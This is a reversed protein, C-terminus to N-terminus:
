VAVPWSAGGAPLCVTGGWAVHHSPSPVERDLSTLGVAAAVDWSGLQLCSGTVAVVQNLNTPPPFSPLVNPPAAARKRAM